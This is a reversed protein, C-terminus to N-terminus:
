KGKLTYADRLLRVRFKSKDKGLLTVALKHTPNDRLSDDLYYGLIYQSKLDDEINQFIQTLDYHARPMLATQEDGLKFYIGGTQQALERFGKAPSRLSLKGDIVGYLPLHLVYVSVGLRNAEDVVQRPRTKSSNDLGDSILIIIKREAPDSERKAFVKLLDMVADFIATSRNPQAKFAFGKAVQDPEGTFPVALEAKDNFRMVATQSGPGFRQALSLAAAREQAIIDRVSGSTDLAFSLAVKETGFAFHGIEVGRGNDYLQFDKKTLNSIRRNKSDTVFLPTTVLNTDVRVVEDDQTQNNQAFTQIPILLYFLSLTLLLIRKFVFFSQFVCSRTAPLAKVSATM